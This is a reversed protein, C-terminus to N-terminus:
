NSDCFLYRDLIYSAIFGTPRPTGEGVYIQVFCFKWIILLMRVVVFLVFMEFAYVITPSLVGRGVVIWTFRYLLLDLDCM